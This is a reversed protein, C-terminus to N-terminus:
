LNFVQLDNVEITDITTFTEWTAGDASSQIAYQSAFYGASGILGLSLSKIGRLQGFDISIWHPQTQNVPPSWWTDMDGDFAKSAAYPLSHVASANASVASLSYNIGMADVDEHLGVQRIAAHYLGHQTNFSNGTQLLRLYRTMLGIFPSSDQRAMMIRQALNM